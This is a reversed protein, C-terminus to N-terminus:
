RSAQCENIACNVRRGQRIIDVSANVRGWANVELVTLLRLLCDSIPTHTHVMGYPSTCHTFNQVRSQLYFPHLTQPDAICRKKWSMILEVM